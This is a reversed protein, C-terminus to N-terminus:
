TGNVLREIQVDMERARIEWRYKDVATKAKEAIAKLKDDAKLGTLEKLKGALAGSGTKYFVASDASFIEPYALRSPLVPVAGLAAAEVVGIGFFEHDATSVIVDASALCNHYEERSTLFGWNLIYPKFKEAARQFVEPVDRFSEGLVSLRFDIKGRKLIDLANFFEEPNKDHEWRSSWLIHLPGKKRRWPMNPIEIGPPQVLSKQKISEVVNVPQNDPMKKLLRGAAATFEDLHFKSNFWVESSALASTMNTFGFQYDRESEFRVPYTLQNEHFYVVSPINSLAPALGSFEAFNLMDSCFVADFREGNGVLACAEAAFNIAAHRMRWKWKYPPLTLLRFSHRSRASWGTLFAEHSGGFYPELALIKM